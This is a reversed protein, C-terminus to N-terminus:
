RGGLVWYGEVGFDGFRTDGDLETGYMTRKMAPADATGLASGLKSSPATRVAMLGLGAAVDNSSM